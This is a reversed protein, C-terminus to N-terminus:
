PRVWSRNAPLNSEESLPLPAPTGRSGGCRRLFSRFSRCTHPWARGSLDDSNSGARRHRRVPTALASGLVMPPGVPPIRLPSPLGIPPGCRVQASPQISRTSVSEPPYRGGPWVQCGVVNALAPVVPYERRSGARLADSPVPDRTGERLPSERGTGSRMGMVTWRLTQSTLAPGSRPRLHGASPGSDPARVPAGSV